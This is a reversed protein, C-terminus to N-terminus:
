IVTEVERIPMEMSSEMSTELTPMVLLTEMSIEPMIIVM